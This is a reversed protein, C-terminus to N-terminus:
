VFAHVEAQGDFSDTSPKAILCHKDKRAMHEEYARRRAAKQEEVAAIKVTRERQEEEQALRMERRWQKRHAKQHQFPIYGGEEAEWDYLGALGGPNCHYVGLAGLDHVQGPRQESRPLSRLSSSAHSTKSSCKPRFLPRAPSTSHSSRTSTETSTSNSRTIDHTRLLPWRSALSERTSSSESAIGPKLINAPSLHSASLKLPNELGPDNDKSTCRERRSM